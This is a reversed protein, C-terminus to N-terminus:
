PKGELPFDFHNAGGPTVVATLETHTNYRAPLYAEREYSQMVSDYKGARTAYIVVKKLGAKARFRFQGQRIKGPDPAVTGDVPQFIIDGAPLPQGNWTVTGSVEYTPPGAPGCGALLLGALGLTLLRPRYSM